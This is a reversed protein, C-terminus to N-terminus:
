LKVTKSSQLEIDKENIGDINTIPFKNETRSGSNSQSNKSSLIQNEFLFPLNYNSKIHIKAAVVCNLPNDKSM